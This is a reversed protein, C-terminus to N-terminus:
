GSYDEFGLRPGRCFLPPGVWVIARCNSLGAMSWIGAALQGAFSWRPYGRGSLLSALQSM